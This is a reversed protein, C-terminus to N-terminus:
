ERFLTVEIGGKKTIESDLTGEWIESLADDEKDNEIIGLDSRLSYLNTLDASMRIKLIESHLEKRSERIQLRIKSEGASPSKIQNKLERVENGLRENETAYRELQEKMDRVERELKSRDLRFEESRDQLSAFAVQWGGWANGEAGGVTKNGMEQKTSDDEAMGKTQTEDEDDALGGNATETHIDNEDNTETTSKDAGRKEDHGGARGASGSRDRKCTGYTSDNSSSSSEKTGSSRELM